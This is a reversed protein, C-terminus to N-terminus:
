LPVRAINPSLGPSLQDFTSVRRRNFRPFYIQSGLFAGQISCWYRIGPGLTLRSSGRILAFPELGRKRISRVFRLNLCDPRVMKVSLYAGVVRQCIFATLLNAELQTACTSTVTLASIRHAPQEITQLLSCHQGSQRM